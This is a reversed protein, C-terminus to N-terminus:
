LCAMNYGQDKVVLESRMSFRIQEFEITEPDHKWHWEALPAARRFVEWWLEKRGRQQPTDSVFQRLPQLCVDAGCYNYIAFRIIMWYWQEEADYMSVCPIGSELEATSLGKRPTINDKQRDMENYFICITQSFPNLKIQCNERAVFEARRRRDDDLPQIQSKM